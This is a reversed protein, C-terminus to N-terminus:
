PLSVDPHYSSRSRRNRVSISRREPHYGGPLRSPCRLLMPPHRHFSHTQLGTGCLRRSDPLPARTSISELTPVQEIKRFPRVRNLNSPAKSEKGPKKSRHDEHLNSPSPKLAFLDESVCVSFRDLFIVASASERWAPCWGCMIHFFQMQSCIHLTIGSVTGVSLYQDTSLPM